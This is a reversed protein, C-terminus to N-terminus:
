ANAYQLLTMGTHFAIKRVTAYRLLIIVLQSGKGFCTQTQGMGALLGIKLLQLM